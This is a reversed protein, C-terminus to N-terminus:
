WSGPFPLAFGLRSHGAINWVPLQGARARIGRELELRRFGLGNFALSVRADLQCELREAFVKARDHIESIDLAEGVPLDSVDHHCPDSGHARPKVTGVASEAAEKTVVRGRPCRVVPPGAWSSETHPNGQECYESTEGPM